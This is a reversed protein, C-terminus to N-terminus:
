IDHGRKKMEQRMRSIVDQSVKRGWANTREYSSQLVGPLIKVLKKGAPTEYFAKIEALEERTFSRAYLGAVENMLEDRRREFEPKLIKIVEDLDKVLEPRTRTLTRKAEDFFVPVIDRLTAITGSAEMVERALTLRPDPATQALAPACALAFAVGAALRRWGNGASM